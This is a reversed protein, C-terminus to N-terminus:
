SAVGVTMDVSYRGYSPNIKIDYWTELYCLSNMYSEKAYQCRFQVIEDAGQNLNSDVFDFSSVIRKAERGTKRKISTYLGITM